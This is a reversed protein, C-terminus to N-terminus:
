PRATALTSAFHTSTAIWSDAKGKNIMDLTKNKDAKLASVVKLLMTKAGAATGFQGPQQACAASSFMLIASTALAITVTRM